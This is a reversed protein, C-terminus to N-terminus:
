FEGVCNSVTVTLGRDHVIEIIKKSIKEYKEMTIGSQKAYSWSSSQVIKRTAAFAAPIMDKPLIHLTSRICKIRGLNKNIYLEEDLQEKKFNKTRVFLSLYPTIPVQAHLGGIDKVVQVIDDMKSDEALHQKRLVFRNIRDLNMNNM